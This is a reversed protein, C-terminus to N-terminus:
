PGLDPPKQADRWAVPLSPADTLHQYPCAQFNDPTWHPSDM